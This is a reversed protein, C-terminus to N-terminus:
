LLFIFGSRIFYKYFTIIRIQVWNFTRYFTFTIYLFQYLFIIFLLKTFLRWQANWQTLKLNRKWWLSIPVYNDDIPNSFSFPTPLLMRKCCIRFLTSVHLKTSAYWWIEVPERLSFVSSFSSTAVDSTTSLFYHHSCWVSWCSFKLIIM